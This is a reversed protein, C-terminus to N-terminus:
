NRGKFIRVQENFRTAFTQMADVAANYRKVQLSKAEPTQQEVPLGAAEKDLCELYGNMATMYKQVEQQAQSMEAGTAKTGDPLPIEPPYECAAFAPVAAVLCGTLLVARIM